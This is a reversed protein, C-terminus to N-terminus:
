RADAGAQPLPEVYTQRQAEMWHTSAYRLVHPGDMRKGQVRTSCRTYATHILRTHLVPLPESVTNSLMGGRCQRHYGGVVETM